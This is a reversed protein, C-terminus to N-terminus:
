GVIKNVIQKVPEIKDNIFYKKLRNVNTQILLIAPQKVFVFQFSIFAFCEHAHSDFIKLFKDFFFLNM